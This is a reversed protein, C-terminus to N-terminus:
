LPDVSELHFDSYMHHFTSSVYVPQASTERASFDSAFSSGRLSGPRGSPIRIGSCTEVFHINESVTVEKFKSQHWTERWMKASDGRRNPQTTIDCVSSRLHPSRTKSLNPWLAWQSSLCPPTSFPPFGSRSWRSRPVSLREVCLRFETIKRVDVELM